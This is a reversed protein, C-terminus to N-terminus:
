CLTREGSFLGGISFLVWIPARAENKFAAIFEGRRPLKKNVLDTPNTTLGWACYPLSDTKLEFWNLELTSLDFIIFLLKLSSYRYPWKVSLFLVYSEFCVIRNIFVSWFGPSSGFLPAIDIFIFLVKGALEEYCFKCRTRVSPFWIM